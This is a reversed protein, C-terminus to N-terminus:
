LAHWPAHSKEDKTSEQITPASRERPAGVGCRLSMWEEELQRQQLVAQQSLFEHGEGPFVALAVDAGWAALNDYLAQSQRPTTASNEDCDGCTLLFPIGRHARAHLVVTMLGYLDPATAVTRIDHEFGNPTAYRDYAGSRLIVGAPDAVQHLVTIAALAAGFSHGGLFPVGSAATTTAIAEQASRWSDSLVTLIADTGCHALAEYDISVRVVPRSSAHSWQPSGVPMSGLDVRTRHSPMSPVTWSSDFWVLPAADRVSDAVIIEVHHAEEGRNVVSAAIGSVPDAALPTWLTRGPSRGSGDDHTASLETPASDSLVLSAGSATTGTTLRQYGHSLGTMVWVHEPTEGPRLGGVVSSDSWSGGPWRVTDPHRAEVWAGSLGPVGTYRSVPEDLAAIVSGDEVAYSTTRDELRETYVVARGCGTDKHAVSGRPLDGVLSVEPAQGEPAAPIVYHNVHDERLYNALGQGTSAISLILTDRAELGVVAGVPLGPLPVDDLMVTCAAARYLDQAQADPWPGGQTSRQVKVDPACHEQRLWITHSGLAWLRTRGSSRSRLGLLSRTSAGWDEPCAEVHERASVRVLGSATRHCYVWGREGYPQPLGVAAETLLTDQGGTNVVGLYGEPVRSPVLDGSLRDYAVGRHRLLDTRPRWTAPHVPQELRARAGTRPDTVTYIRVQNLGTGVSESREGGLANM